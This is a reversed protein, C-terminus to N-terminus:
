KTLGLTDIEEATVFGVAWATSNKTIIAFLEERKQASLKKSDTVDIFHEANEPAIVVAGAYLPGAWAGRGAEDVGVIAKYGKQLLNQELEFTPM